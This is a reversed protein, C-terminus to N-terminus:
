LVYGAERLKELERQWRELEVRGWDEPCSILGTEVGMSRCKWYPRPPVGMAKLGETRLESRLVGAVRNRDYICRRPDVGAASIYTGEWRGIDLQPGAANSADGELKIEM